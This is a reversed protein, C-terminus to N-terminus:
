VVDVVDFGEAGSDDLAAVKLEGVVLVFAQEGKEDSGSPFEAKSELGTSDLEGSVGAVSKGTSDFVPVAGWFPSAPRFPLELVVGVFPWRDM